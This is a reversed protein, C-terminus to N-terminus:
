KLANGCSFADAVDGGIKVYKHSSPALSIAELKDTDIVDGDGLVSDDVLVNVIEAVIRLTQDYQKIEEVKCELTIPFEEIVPADVFESKVTHLGAKEIKNPEDHGSVIGLYDAAEVHKADAISVTFAQKAKINESSKHRAGINIQIRNSNVVGGYAVNMADVSGDEGYSAVILVPQPYIFPKAGFNKKM